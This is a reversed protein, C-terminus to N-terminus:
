LKTILYEFNFKEQMNKIFTDACEIEFEESFINYKPIIKDKVNNFDKKIEKMKDITVEGWGDKPRIIKYSTTKTIVESSKLNNDMTFLFDELSFTGEVTHNHAFDSDELLAMYKEPVNISGSGGKLPILDGSKTKIYGYEINKSERM